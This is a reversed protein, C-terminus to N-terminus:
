LDENQAIHCSDSGWGKPLFSFLYVRRSEGLATIFSELLCSTMVSHGHILMGVVHVLGAM